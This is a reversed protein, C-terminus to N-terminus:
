QVIYKIYFSLAKMGKYCHEKASALGRYTRHRPLPSCLLSAITAYKPSEFGRLTRPYSQSPTSHILLMPSASIFLYGIESDSDRKQM